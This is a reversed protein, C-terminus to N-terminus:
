RRNKRNVLYIAFGAVAGFAVLGTLIYDLRSINLDSFLTSGTNPTNPTTSGSGGDNGGVTYNVGLTVMSIMQDAANYASIVTTYEDTDAGYREFPLDIIFEGTNPDIASADLILPEEQGDANVFLPRGDKHYAQVRIKAVQSNAKVSLIPDGNDKAGRDFNAQIARYNFSVTDERTTGGNGYAVARLKFARYGYPALNLNFSHEGIQQSPTFTEVNTQVEAGSDNTYTLYYEIKSSDEYSSKVELDPDIFDSGDLPNLIAVRTDGEGITVNVNVTSGEIAAAGPAPMAYAITTMIGVAALGAIGLIQKKTKQM